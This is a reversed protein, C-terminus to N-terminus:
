AHKTMNADYGLIAPLYVTYLYVKYLYVKYLCAENLQVGRLDADTRDM